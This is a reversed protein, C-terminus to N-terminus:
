KTIKSFLLDKVTKLGGSFKQGFHHYLVTIPVEKIKLKSQFAKALIESCHAMGDQEIKIKGAVSAKFARFGGQPDTTKIKFFLFNVLHALPFYIYRKLKPMESQRGLFRSGIVIDYDGSLLPQIVESIEKVLFQGDADFHVIIDAGQALAYDTGTRLAAGQGRNIKHRLYDVSYKKVVERTQDVSGDDVVVVQYALVSLEQLVQAIRKEENYAPIIIFVKM